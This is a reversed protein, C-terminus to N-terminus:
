KGSKKVLTIGLQPIEKTEIKPTFESDKVRKVWQSVTGLRIGTQQAYQAQTQWENFDITVINTDKAM